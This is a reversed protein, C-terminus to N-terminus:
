PKLIVDNANRIYNTYLTKGDVVLNKWDSLDASDLVHGQLVGLRDSPVGLNINNNKLYGTKPLILSTLSYCYSAYGVMFNNGASIINSTDPIALSTLSYNMSTYYAMFNSGVSIMSSIDPASLSNISCVQAYGWMFYNGASTINSTDPVDLSELSYCNRAYNSLFHDGVSTINSTDPVDLSTLSSCVGAYSSMFGDGVSTINSVDPIDLSTLSSCNYAYYAMFYNGITGSLVEKTNISITKIKDGGAFSPTMYDNGNKNWNHAIQMTTSAIPFTTASGSVNLSIWEGSTGPRYYIIGSYYMSSGRYLLIPSTQGVDEENFTLTHVVDYDTNPDILSPSFNIGTPVAINLGKNYGALALGLCFSISYTKGDSSYTYTNDGDSCNGDNPTPAIPLTTIYKPTLKNLSLPYVKNKTRYFELATQLQKIDTIRKTDRSNMRSSRLSVTILGALISIIFIVVILEVITFAKKNNKRQFM